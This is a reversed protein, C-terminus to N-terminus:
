RDGLGNRRGLGRSLCLYRVVTFPHLVELWQINEIDDWPRPDLDGYIHLDVLTSLPLYSTCFQKLFSVRWTLGRCLVEVKLEGYGPKQSSLKVAAGDFEFIVYAKELAELTPTRSTLQIFQPIDFENRYFFTVDLNNLHPAHIRAVFDDLYETDGEEIPSRFLM